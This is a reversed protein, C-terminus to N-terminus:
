SQETVGVRKKAEEETAKEVKEKDKEPVQNLKGDIRDALAAANEAPSPEESVEVVPDPTKRSKSQWLNEANLVADIEFPESALL